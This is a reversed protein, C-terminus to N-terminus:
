SSIDNNEETIDRDKRKLYLDEYLDHLKEM